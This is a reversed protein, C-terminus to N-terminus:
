SDRRETAPVPDIGYVRALESLERDDAGSLPIGEKLRRCRLEWRREGPFRPPRCGDQVPVSQVARILEQMRTEFIESGGAHAPDIALLFQSLGEPLDPYREKSSVQDAFAGGPLVGTLVELAYLLAFGKDGGFPLLSGALAERPNRTERGEADLATAASISTGTEAARVINARSTVSTAMDLEFFRGNGAPAALAIPNNSFVPRKGGMPAVCVQGNSLVMGVQGTRAIRVAYHGAFGFHNSNRIVALGVGKMKAMASAADAAVAAVHHGVGNRGDVMLVVGNEVIVPDAAADVSGRRMRNLYPKLRRIGHTEVGRLHAEWLAEAFNEAVGPAAGAAEALARVVTRVRGPPWIVAQAPVHPKESVLSALNHTHVHDGAHISGTARGIPLGYKCILDGSVKSSRAVKHGAPIKQAATVEGAEKASVSFQLAITRGAAVDAFVTAVDDSDALVVGIAPKIGAM